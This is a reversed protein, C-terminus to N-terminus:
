QVIEPHDTWVPFWVDGDGGVPTCKGFRDLKPADNYPEVGEALTHGVWGL